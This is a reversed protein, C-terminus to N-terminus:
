EYGPNNQNKLAPNAQLEGLPIHHQTAPQAM